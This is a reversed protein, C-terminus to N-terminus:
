LYLFFLHQAKQPKYIYACQVVVCKCEYWKRSCKFIHYWYCQKPIRFEFGRPDFWIFYICVFMRRFSSAYARFDWREDLSTRFFGSILSFTWSITQSKATQNDRKKRSRRWGVRKAAETKKELQHLKLEKEIGNEKKQRLKPLRANWYCTCVIENAYRAFYNARKKNSKICVNM